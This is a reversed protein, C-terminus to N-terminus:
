NSVRLGSLPKSDVSSDLSKPSLIDIFNLIQIRPLMPCAVLFVLLISHKFNSLVYKQDHQIIKV